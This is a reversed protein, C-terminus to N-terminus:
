SNDIYALGVGRQAGAPLTYFKAYQRHASLHLTTLKLCDSKM